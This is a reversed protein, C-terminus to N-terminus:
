EGGFSKFSRTGISYRGAGPWRLRADTHREGLFDPRLAEKLAEFARHLREATINRRVEGKRRLGGRVGFAGEARRPKSGGEEYASAAMGGQPSRYRGPTM